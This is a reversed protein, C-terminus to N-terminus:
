DREYHITRHPKRWWAILTEYLFEPSGLRNTLKIPDGTNPRIVVQRVTKSRFRSRYQQFSSLTIDFIQEHTLEEKGMSGILIIKEPTIIIKQVAILTDAVIYLGFAILLIGLIFGNSINESIKGILIDELARITLYIGFLACAAGVIYAAIVQFSNSKIIEERQM